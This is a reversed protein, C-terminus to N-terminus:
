KRLSKGNMLIVEFMEKMRDYLREGYILKLAEGNLNTIAHTTTGFDKFSKYRDLIIEGMVNLNNGYLNSNSSELGFDDFCYDYTNKSYEDIANVGNVLYERVIHRTEKMKFYQPNGKYISQMINMITTKGTGVNGMLLIGKPSKSKFHDIIQNIPNENQDTIEFNVGLLKTANEITEIRVKEM